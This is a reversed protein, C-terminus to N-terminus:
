GIEKRAADNEEREFVKKIVYDKVSKFLNIDESEMYEELDFSIDCKNEIGVVLQMFEISNFNLDTVLNTKENIEKQHTLNEKIKKIEEVLIDYIHNM